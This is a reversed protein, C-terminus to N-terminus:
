KYFSTEKCEAELSMFIKREGPFTNHLRDFKRAHRPEDPFYCAAPGAPALLDLHELEGACLKADAPGIKVHGFGARTSAYFIVPVLITRM